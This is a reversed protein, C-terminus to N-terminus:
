RESHTGKRPLRSEMLESSKEAQELSIEYVADAILISRTWKYRTDTFDATM